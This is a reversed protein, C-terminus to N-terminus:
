SSIWAKEPNINRGLYYFESSMIMKDRVVVVPSSKCSCNKDESALYFCKLLNVLHSPLMYKNRHPSQRVPATVTSFDRNGKSPLAGIMWM